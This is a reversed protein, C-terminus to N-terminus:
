GTIQCETVETVPLLMLHVVTFPLLRLLSARFTNSFNVTSIEPSHCRTTQYLNSSRETSHVDETKLSFSYPLCPVFVCCAQTLSIKYKSKTTVSFKVWSKQPIYHGASYIYSMDCYLMVQWKSSHNEYLWKVCCYITKLCNGSHRHTKEIRVILLENCESHNLKDTASREAATLTFNAGM